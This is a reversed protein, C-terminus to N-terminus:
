EGAGSDPVDDADADTAEELSELISLRSWVCCCCKRLESAYLDQWHEKQRRDRSAARCLSWIWGTFALVVLGIIWFAWLPLYMM